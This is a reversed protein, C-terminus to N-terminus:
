RRPPPADDPLCALMDGSAVICEGSVIRDGQSLSMSCADALEKDICAEIAEPPATSAPQPNDPLCALEDDPTVTCQGAVTLNGRPLTVECADNLEKETCAEIAEPPVGRM